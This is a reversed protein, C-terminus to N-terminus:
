NKCPQFHVLEKLQSQQIEYIGRICKLSDTSDHFMGKASYQGQVNVTFHKSQVPVLPLSLELNTRTITDNKEIWKSFNITTDNIWTAEVSDIIVQFSEKENIFEFLTSQLYVTDTKELGESQYIAQATEVLGKAVVIRGMITFYFVDESSSNMKESFICSSLLIVTTLCLWISKFVKM